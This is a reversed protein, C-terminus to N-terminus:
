SLYRERLIRGHHRVHGATMWALARTTVENDNAIGSRLWAEGSLPALLAITARRVATFEDILAAMSVTAFPGSEVYADQDFPSMPTRDGRSIRLARYAFVRETDNVHGLVQKITWKGPAYRYAGRDDGIGTLLALLEQLQAELTEVIDGEPILVVYRGYYPAYESPQPATSRITKSDM